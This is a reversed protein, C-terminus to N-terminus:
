PDSAIHQTTLMTLVDPDDPDHRDDENCDVTLEGVTSEGFSIDQTGDSPRGSVNGLAGVTLAFNAQGEDNTDTVLDQLGSEHVLDADNSTNLLRTSLNVRANNSLDIDDHGNDSGAELVIEATPSQTSTGNVSVTSFASAGDGSDNPSGHMCVQENM